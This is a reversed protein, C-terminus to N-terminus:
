KIVDWAFLTTRGGIVVLEKWTMQRRLFNEISDDLV